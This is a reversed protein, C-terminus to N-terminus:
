APFYCTYYVRDDNVQSTRTANEVQITRITAYCADPLLDIGLVLRDGSRCAQGEHACFDYEIESALRLALTRAGDQTFKDPNYSVELRVSPVSLLISGAAAVAVVVSPM